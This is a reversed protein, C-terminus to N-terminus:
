WPFCPCIEKQKLTAKNGVETLWFTIHSCRHFGKGEASSWTGQHPCSEKRVEESNGLAFKSAANLQISYTRVSNGKRPFIGWSPLHPISSYVRKLMTWTARPLCLHHWSFRIGGKIEVRPIHFRSTLANRICYKPSAIATEDRQLYTQQPQKKWIIFHM